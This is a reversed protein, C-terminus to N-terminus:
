RRIDVQTGLNAWNYVKKAASTSLIICGYSQRTGLLGGWMVTGNPRIPLGHIGNEIGKVWYVGMWYPMRLKWIRSYAEPIKDLVQFHGTATDRGKLGTSVKFKFVLKEGQYAYLRQESIDIVIRKSLLYNVRDLHKQAQADGPRLALATKLDDRAPKLKLAEERAIGRGRYASALLDVVAPASPTEEPLREQAKTLTEIAAGWDEKAMQARGKGQYAESLLETIQAAHPDVKSLRRSAETLTKIASDWDQDAMEARGKGQYAALLLDAVGAAWKADEPSREFVQTLAEVATHWDEGEIAAEGKRKYSEMLRAFVDSYDPLQEYADTFARIAADWMADRLAQRGELYKQTTDQWLRAELDDPVLAVAEDFQLLAKPVRGEEVLAQGYQMHTTLAWEGVKGGTPDVAQMIAVLELSRDWDASALADDLQPSFQASIENPMMTPTPLPTPTPTAL